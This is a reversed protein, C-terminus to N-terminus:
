QVNYIARALSQQRSRFVDYLVLLGQGKRQIKKEQDETPISKSILLSTNKEISQLISSLFEMDNQILKDHVSWYHTRITHQSLFDTM